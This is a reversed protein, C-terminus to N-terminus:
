PNEIEQFTPNGVYVTREASGTVTASFVVWGFEVQERETISDDGIWEWPTTGLRPATITTSVTAPAGSSATVSVTGFREAGISDTAGIQVRVFCPTASESYVRFVVRVDRPTGDERRRLHLPFLTIRQFLEVSGDIDASVWPSSPNQAAGTIYTASEQIARQLNGRWVRQTVASSVSRDAPLTEFDMWSPTTM